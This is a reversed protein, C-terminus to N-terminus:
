RAINNQTFEAVEDESFGFEALIERTHEGLEPSCRFIEAPTESFRGPPRAQRMAGGFPHDFEWLSNIAKVQPDNIVDERSNIKSFPVQEAELRENLEEVTFHEFAENLTAQLLENNIGTDTVYTPDEMLNPLELARFTGLWEERQVPMTCIYGDKTKRVMNTHSAGHPLRPVDDGVFTYNLMNDPWLFFLAADLMAVDVRQGVGTRERAFLASSISQAAAMATLKDCILSNIMVPREVSPDSQLTAVGSIAQIIADYVRRGAYPGSHGVGNISAFILNPNIDKLTDYSLNLREMVGPRFNEIVVDVQEIMKKAIQQGEETSLDLVISRKNRNLMAFAASVGNRQIFQANRMWDGDPAEVKIVDAGQDGLISACIPGSYITTLDFVRIGDLPGAMSNGKSTTDTGLNGNQLKAGERRLGFPM